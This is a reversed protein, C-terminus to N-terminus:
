FHVNVKGIWSVWSKDAGLQHSISLPCQFFPGVLVGSKWAICVGLHMTNIFVDEPGLLNAAAHCLGGIAM